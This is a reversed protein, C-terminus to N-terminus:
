LSIRIFYLGAIFTIVLFIMCIWENYFLFLITNTINVKEGIDTLVKKAIYILYSSIGISTFLFVFGLINGILRDSM